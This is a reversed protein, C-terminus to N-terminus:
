VLSWAVGDLIDHETVRLGPLDLRSLVAVLILAGAAIVDARGANVSPLAAREAVTMAVLTQYCEVVADTSVWAGEIRQRDYRPLELAMTAVTTITGAVGVLTGPRQLLRADCGDLAREVAATVATVEDATPPDSGLHRETLRVSGIDLSAGVVPGSGDVRCVLETSGGGIDLVVVPAVVDDDAVRLMRTAGDYSLEAEQQGSIVEPPVALRATVGAVFEDRNEVDRAASTAVCRTAEVDAATILGAYVDLGDFTRTLADAAFRRTRDVGQGLRVIRTHREHEEASGSVPDLDAVLLRLSNTGIDVAAVRTL